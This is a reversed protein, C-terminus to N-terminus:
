KSASDFLHRFEFRNRKASILRFRRGALLFGKQSEAIPLQYRFPTEPDFALLRVDLKFMKKGDLGLYTIRMRDIDFSQNMKLTITRTKADYTPRHGLTEWRPLRFYRKLIMDERPASTSSPSPFYLEALYLLVGVSLMTAGIFLLVHWWRSSRANDSM